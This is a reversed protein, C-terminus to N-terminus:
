DGWQELLVGFARRTRAWSGGDKVVRADLDKLLQEALEIPEKGYSCPDPGLDWRNVYPDDNFVTDEDTAYVM